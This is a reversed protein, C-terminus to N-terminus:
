RSIIDPFPYFIALDVPWIMKYIYVVYSVVANEIRILLPHTASSIVQSHGQLMLTSVRIAAFSLFLLPIKELILKRASTKVFLTQPFRKINTNSTLDSAWKLRKLPWYDLLLLVCPLVALIPKSLLGFSMALCVLLYRSFSPRKAYFIYALMTVMWFTTSLLNKREAIWATSEINIPHIAFISSMFFCKWIDGTMLSFVLFLLVANLTHFFLNSLHLMHPDVGFLQVDIM